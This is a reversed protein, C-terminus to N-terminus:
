SVPRYNQPDDRKGKKFLPVVGAEKWDIPVIGKDVSTKYLITLPKILYKKLEFLMKPHIEDLGPCKNM